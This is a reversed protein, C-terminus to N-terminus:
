VRIWSIWGVGVPTLWVLFICIKSCSLLIMWGDQNCLGFNGRNQALFAECWGWFHPLHKARIMHPLFPLTPSTPRSCGHLLIGEDRNSAYSAGSLPVGHLRVSDIGYQWWGRWPINMEVQSGYKYICITTSTLTNFVKSIKASIMACSLRTQLLQLVWTGRLAPWFHSKWSFLFDHASMSPNLLPSPNLHQDPNALNRDKTARNEQPARFKVDTTHPISGIVMLQFSFLSMDYRPISKRWIEYSSAVRHQRNRKKIDSESQYKSQWNWRM